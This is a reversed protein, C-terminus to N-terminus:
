STCKFKINQIIQKSRGLLLIRKDDTCAWTRIPEENVNLITRNTLTIVNVGDFFNALLAQLFALAVM